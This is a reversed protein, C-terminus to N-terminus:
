LGALRISASATYTGYKVTVSLPEKAYGYGYVTATKAGASARYAAPDAGSFSWELAEETERGNRFFAASVTCEGYADLAEPPAQTFRVGDEGSGGVTVAAGASYAPNQALAATIVATGTGAASVFGNQDVVAVSEDSSSWVYSVPHAATDEALEGNRYSVATLQIGEADEPFLTESPYLTDAPFPANLGSDGALQVDWSFSKGGAVHNELDDIEANPEEYRVTFELLRVSSYDGTFETSFDSYGTVRYAATGLIFRTNTDIQRTVDNYQCVCNFYGKTILNAEQADSDNADARYNTVVMPESQVNGYWDLYNWVANCREVIAKGDSGSVNFPNAVIWTSGMTVIKSGPVIYEIDRDEFLVIKYNDARRLIAASPRVIDSMRLRRTQWAFPDEPDIGQVQAEVFDAAYKAYLHTFTRTEPSFYQRQKGAYQPPTNNQWSVLGNGALMANKLARQISM